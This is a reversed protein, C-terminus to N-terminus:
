APSYFNVNKRKIQQSLRQISQKAKGALERWFQVFISLPQEMISELLHDM